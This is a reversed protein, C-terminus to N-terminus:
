WYKRETSRELKPIPDFVLWRLSSALGSIPAGPPLYAFRLHSWPQSTPLGMSLQFNLTQEGGGKRSIEECEGIGCGM